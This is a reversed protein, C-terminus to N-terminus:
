HLFDVLNLLPITTSSSLHENTTTQKVLRCPGAVATVFPVLTDFTLDIEASADRNSLVVLSHIMGMATPRIVTQLYIDNGPCSFVCNM